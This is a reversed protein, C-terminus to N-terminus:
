PIRFRRRRVQRTHDQSLSPLIVTALAIGFVGLPFEVIRDSYYLWSVSGTVLFSAIMTDVLLNIQVVSVGFIAPLILRVIRVVGPHGRQLRPRCLLGLRYLFPGQFALQAIGALLVGWALAIVPQAFYPALWM